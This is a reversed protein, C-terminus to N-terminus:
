SEQKEQFTRLRDLFDADEGADIGGELEVPSLVAADPIDALRLVDGGHEAAFAMARDPDAFPVLEPAGMGGAVTAGVVYHASEAAIYNGAGPDDWVAGAAGMDSVHIAVIMRSQEPMRQYAIADRVQSFFLPDPLGALHLQGKPGPHELLGMQCFHGVSDGTMAVAAPLEALEERCAALALLGLAALAYRPAHNM